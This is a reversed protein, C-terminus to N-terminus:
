QWDEPKIIIKEENGPRIVRTVTYHKGGPCRVDVPCKGTPSDKKFVPAVGLNLRGVTVKCDGIGVPMVSIKGGAGVCGSGGGGGGGAGGGGHAEARDPREAAHSPASVSAPRPKKHVEKQLKARITVETKSGFKVTEEHSKYGELSLELSYPQRPDLDGIDKPTVGREQGGLFITAGAPTSSIKLKSATVGTPLGPKDSSGVPVLKVQVVKRKDGTNFNVVVQQTIYGTKVVELVLPHTIDRVTMTYPTTSQPVGGLRVVAVPPDSNIQVQVEGAPLAAGNPQLEIKIEAPAGAVLDFRYAKDGYGQSRALLTHEGVPVNQRVIPTKQGILEGDMFVDVVDTPVSRVVLTGNSGGMDALYFALAALPLLLLLMAATILMNRRRRDPPPPSPLAGQAADLPVPAPVLGMSGQDGVLTQANAVSDFGSEFIMTKEARNDSWDGTPAQRMQQAGELAEVSTPPPLKMFQDMKSRDAAIEESYEDKLLTSLKKANFINQDEILFQQLDDHLEMAWQYREDRERALAKLVVADLAESINPNHQSPPVVEAARVKELTAFDSEGIFLRKGTLAEYLLIGVAFIDSRHDIELGRVQEPSMYGFKGKLVGAQTKSARDEAKVIGFDTIKVEGEYGVLINQPSVDRHILHLPRGAVDNKRHAYDLGECIKSVVYSAAEIPMTEKKKRFRDLIQRLDRGPVFEMAIYYQSEFKGLEYIPVINAHNLQVAIRAEDIFMNIFEDDEAMNPLIRKIALIREFGEVGFAKAKFVEAMGGVNIRELLLYKGFTIPYSM